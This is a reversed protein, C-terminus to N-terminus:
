SDRVLAVSRDSILLLVVSRLFLSYRAWLAAYYFDLVTKEFIADTTWIMEGVYM